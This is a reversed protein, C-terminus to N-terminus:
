IERVRLRVVRECHPAHAASPLLATTLADLTPSGVGPAPSARRPALPCFSRMLRCCPPLPLPSTARPAPYAANRPATNIPTATTIPITSSWIPSRLSLPGDAFAFGVVGLVVVVVTGFCVPVVTLFPPTVLVVLATTRAGFASLTITSLPPAAVPFAPAM